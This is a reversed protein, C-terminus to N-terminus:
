ILHQLGSRWNLSATFLPLSLSCILRLAPGLRLLAVLILMASKLKLLWIHFPERNSSTSVPLILRVVSIVGDKLSRQIGLKTLLQDKSLFCSQDFRDVLAELASKLCGVHCKIDEIELRFEPQSLRFCDFAGAQGPNLTALTYFSFFCWKIDDIQLLLCIHWVHLLKCMHLLAFEAVLIVPIEVDHVALELLVMGPLNRLFICFDLIATDLAEYGSVVQVRDYALEIVRVLLYQDAFTLFLSKLPLTLLEVGVHPGGADQPALPM